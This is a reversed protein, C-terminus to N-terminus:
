RKHLMAQHREGFHAYFEEPSLEQTAECIRCVRAPRGDVLAPRYSHPCTRQQYHRTAAECLSKFRARWTGYILRFARLLRVM